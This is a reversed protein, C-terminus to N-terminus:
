DGRKLTVTEFHVTEKEGITFWYSAEDTVADRGALLNWKGPGLGGFSFRGAADSREQTAVRPDEGGEHPELSILAFPVPVGAEDVVVGQLRREPALVVRKVATPSADKETFRMWQSAFGPATIAVRADCEGRLPVTFQGIVAAEASVHLPRETSFPLERRHTTTWAFVRAGRVPENNGDVLSLMISRPTNLVSAHRLTLDLPADGPWVDRALTPEFGPAGALVVRAEEDFGGIRFRGASDARTGIEPSGGGDPHISSMGSRGDLVGVDTESRWVTPAWSEGDVYFWERNFIRVVAGGLPQGDEDRVTGAIALGADAVLDPAQIVQEASAFPVLPMVSAPALGAQEILLTEGPRPSRFEYVGDTDTVREADDPFDSFWHVRRVRIGRLPIGDTGVVRGRLLRSPEVVVTGVDFERFPADHFGRVFLACRVDDVALCTVRDFYGMGRSRESRPLSSTPMGRLTHFTFRGDAGTRTTPWNKRVEGTACAVIEQTLGDPVYFVKAETLPSGDKDILSGTLTFPATWARPVGFWYGAETVLSEDSVNSVATAVPSSPDQVPRADVTIVPVLLTVTSIVVLITTRTCKLGIM